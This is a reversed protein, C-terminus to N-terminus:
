VTPASPREIVEFHEMVLEIEQISVEAGTADLDTSVKHRTPFVEHCTYEIYGDSPLAMEVNAPSSSNPKSDRHMHMITLDARYESRGEVVDKMWAWFTGDRLAVGRSLTINNVSPLGTYKKTYIYHGERYEVAAQTLEPASVTSFGATVKGNSESSLNNALGSLGNLKVHFRFNHLFDTVKARAM